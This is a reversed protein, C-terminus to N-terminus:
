ENIIKKSTVVFRHKALNRLSYGFNAILQEFALNEAAALTRCKEDSIKISMETSLCDLDIIKILWYM